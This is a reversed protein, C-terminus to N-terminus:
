EGTCKEHVYTCTTPTDTSAISLCKSKLLFYPSSKGRRDSWTFLSWKNDVGVIRSQPVYDLSWLWKMKGKVKTENKIMINIETNTGIEYFTKFSSKIKLKEKECPPTMLPFYPEKSSKPNTPLNLLLCVYTIDGSELISYTKVSTSPFTAVCASSTNAFIAM